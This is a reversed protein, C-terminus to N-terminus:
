NNKLKLNDKIKKFINNFEKEDNGAIIKLLSDLSEKLNEYLKQNHQNKSQIDWYVHANGNTIRELLKFLKQQFPTTFNKFEKSDYDVKTLTLGFSLIIIHSLAQVVSMMKDHAELTSFAINAGKNRMTDIFKDKELLKELESTIVVVNNDKFGLAPKFLPHISIIKIKKNSQNILTNLRALYNQKVALTDILTAGNKIYPFLRDLTAISLTESLCIVIYDSKKVNQMIYKNQLESLLNLDVKKYKVKSNNIIANPNKDIGIINDSFVIFVDLLLHGIEGNVGFILSRKLDINNKLNEM